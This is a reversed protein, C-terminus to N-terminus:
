PVYETNTTGPDLGLGESELTKEEVLSGVRWNDGSADGKSTNAM